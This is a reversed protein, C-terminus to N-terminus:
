AVENVIKYSDKQTNATSSIFFQNEIYIFDQSEAICQRYAKYVSDEYTDWPLGTSWRSASRIIQCECSSWHNTHELLINKHRINLHNSSLSQKINSASSKILRTLDDISRNPLM